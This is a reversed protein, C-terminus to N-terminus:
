RIDDAFPLSIIFFGPPSIQQLTEPDVKEDQPLLAVCRPPSSDRMAYSIDVLLITVDRHRFLININSVQM